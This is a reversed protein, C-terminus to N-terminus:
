DKIAMYKKFVHRIAYGMGVMVFYIWWSLIFGSLIFYDNFDLDNINEAKIDDIIFFMPWGWAYVRQFQEGTVVNDPEFLNGRVKVSDEFTLSILTIALAIVAVRLTALIYFRM